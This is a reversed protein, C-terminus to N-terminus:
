HVYVLHGPRLVARLADFDPPAVPIEGSEGRVAADSTRRRLTPGEEIVIAAADVQRVPRIGMAIAGQFAIERLRAEGQGLFLRGDELVVELYPTAEPFPGERARELQLKIREARLITASARTEDALTARAAQMAEISTRMGRAAHWSVLTVVTLALVLWGQTAPRM